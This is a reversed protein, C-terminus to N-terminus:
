IPGMVIGDVCVDMGPLDGMEAWYGGVCVSWAREGGQCTIEGDTACEDGTFGSIANDVCETGHPVRGMHQLHDGNALAPPGSAGSGSGSSQRQVIGNSHGNFNSSNDAFSRALTENDGAPFAPQSARRRTPGPACVSYQRRGNCTISGISCYFPTPTPTPSSVTSSLPPLLLSQGSVSEVPVTLSSYTPVPLVLTPTILPVTDM